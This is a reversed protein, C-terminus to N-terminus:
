GLTGFSAETFSVNRTANRIGRIAGTQRNCATGTNPEVVRLGALCKVHEDQTEDTTDRITGITLRKCTATPIADHTQPISLGTFESLGEYSM